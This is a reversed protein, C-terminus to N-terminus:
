LSRVIGSLERKYTTYRRKALLLKKSLLRVPQWTGHGDAQKPVAGIAESSAEMLRRKERKLYLSNEKLTRFVQRLMKKYLLLDATHVLGSDMYVKVGGGIWDFFVQHIPRQFTAPVNVMGFLMVLFKYM